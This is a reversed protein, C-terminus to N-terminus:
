PRWCSEGSQSASSKTDPVVRCRYFALPSIKAKGQSASPMSIAHLARMLTLEDNGNEALPLERVDPEKSDAISNAGGRMDLIHPVADNTACSSVSSM